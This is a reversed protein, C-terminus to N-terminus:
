AAQNKKSARMTRLKTLGKDLKRLKALTPSMEGRKWRGWTSDDFGCLKCFGHMSWGKAIVEREISEYDPDAFQM